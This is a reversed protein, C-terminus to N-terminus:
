QTGPEPPAQELHRRLPRRLRNPLDHGPVLRRFLGALREGGGELPQTGPGQLAAEDRQGLDGCPGPGPLSTPHLLVGARRQM